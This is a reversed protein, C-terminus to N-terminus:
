LRFQAFSEDDVSVSTRSWPASGQCYSVGVNYYTFALVSGTNVTSATGYASDRTASGRPRTTPATGPSGYDTGSGYGVSASGM